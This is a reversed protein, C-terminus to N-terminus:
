QTSRYTKANLGVSRLVSSLGDGLDADDDVIHVVPSEDPTNPMSCEVWHHSYVKM